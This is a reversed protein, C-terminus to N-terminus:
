SAREDALSTNVDSTWLSIRPVHVLIDFARCVDIDMLQDQMRMKRADDIASASQADMTRLDLLSVGSVNSDLVHDITDAGAPPLSRIYLESDYSGDGAPVTRMAVLDGGGCPTGFAVYQDGWRHALHVGLTDVSAVSGAATSIPTRQIHGNHALVIIREERKLIWEVTDAMTADRINAECAAADGSMLAAVARLQLDLQAAVHLHQRAFDFREADSREIYTRRHADFRAGLDALLATLENQDAAALTMYQRIVTSGAFVVKSSASEETKAECSAALEQLRTLRVQFGPDVSMVYAAVVDIAPRLSANSGPLDLGFFRVPRCGVKNTAADNHARLWDVLEGMEECRGLHMSMGEVLAHERDPQRGRIYDDVLFTEPFGSEWAVATFNMRQVLFRILRHRLTYFEHAAHVSEGIAVIRVENAILRRLPELDEIPATPDITSLSLASKDFLGNGAAM